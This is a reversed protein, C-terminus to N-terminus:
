SHVWKDNCHNSCYKLITERYHLFTVNFLSREPHKDATCPKGCFLCDVKWDFSNIFKRTSVKLVKSTVEAVCDGARKRKQRQRNIHILISQNEKQKQLIHSGLVELKLQNAYEILSAIGGKCERLGVNDQEQCIVCHKEKIYKEGEEM